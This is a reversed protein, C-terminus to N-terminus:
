DLTFCFCDWALFHHKSWMKNKAKLSCAFRFCCNMVIYQQSTEPWHNHNTSWWLSVLITHSSELFVWLYLGGSKVGLEWTLRTANLSYGEIDFLDTSKISLNVRIRQVTSTISSIRIVLNHEERNMSGALVWMFLLPWPM